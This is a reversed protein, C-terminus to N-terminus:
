ITLTFTNHSTYYQLLATNVYRSTLIDQKRLSNNQVQMPLFVSVLFYFLDVESFFNGESFWTM